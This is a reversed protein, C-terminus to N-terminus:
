PSITLIVTDSYGGTRADIYDSALISGTLTVSTSAASGAGTGSVSAPSLSYAIFDSATPGRMRRLGRATSFHLGNGAALTYHAGLTCRFTVQVTQAVATGAAPDLTGFALSPAGGTFRCSGVVTARVALATSDAARAAPALVLLLALVLTKPRM